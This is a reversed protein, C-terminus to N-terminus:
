TRPAARRSYVRWRKAPKQKAILQEQTYYSASIGQVMTMAISLLATTLILAAIMVEILTVGAEPNHKLTRDM